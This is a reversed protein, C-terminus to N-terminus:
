RSAQAVADGQVCRQALAKRDIKGNTNLPFADISIVRHPVAYSPLRLKCAQQIDKADLTSSTVFAVLGAPRGAEDVPWPIVVTISAHSCEQVVHEVEELEIRNGRIKVQTDLRGQFVLGFDNSERVADSSRYWRQSWRGPYTRSIFRANGPEDASLYGSAVQPGGILLEGTQGDEVPELDEDVIVAEIGPTLQGLPIVTHTPDDLFERSIEFRTCAITTETPGYVNLMRSNPAANMWARLLTRPLAEGGFMSYRLTPFENATLKRFQHLFGVVSPVSNWHTIDHQKIFAANYLPEVTKPVYLAGGSGWCVFMDHVSPDFTLECFQVFRAGPFGDGLRLQGDIYASANAHSIPVGKPAGTSGSTFLIYATDDAHIDRGTGHADFPLDMPLRKVCSPVADDDPQAATDNDILYIQPVDDLLALVENLAAACRRDVLMVSAGSQRIISATRAAPVGPNLPVYAMGAALIGLVSSYAAGSRSAFLLCRRPEADGAVHLLGAAIRQAQGAVDRYSYLQEDVWLAPIDPQSTATDFFFSHLM